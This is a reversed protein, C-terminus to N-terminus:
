RFLFPFSLVAEQPWRIRTLGKLAASGIPVPLIPSPVTQICRMLQPIRRASPDAKEFEDNTIRGAVLSRTLEALRRRAHRDIM